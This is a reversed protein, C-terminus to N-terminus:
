QMNVGVQKELFVQQSLKEPILAVNIFLQPTM